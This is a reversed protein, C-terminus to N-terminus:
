RWTAPSAGAFSKCLDWSHQNQICDALVDRRIVDLGVAYGFVHEQQLWEHLRSLRGPRSLGTAELAQPGVAM